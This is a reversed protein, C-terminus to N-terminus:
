EIEASISASTNATTIAADSFSPAIPWHALRLWERRFRPQISNTLTGRGRAYRQRRRIGQSAPTTAIVDLSAPSGCGAVGITLPSLGLLQKLKEVGFRGNWGPAATVAREHHSM